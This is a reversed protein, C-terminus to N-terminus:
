PRESGYSVILSAGSFFGALALPEEGAVRATAKPFAYGASVALGLDLEGLVVHPVVEIGAHGVVGGASAGSMAPSASVAHVDVASAGGRVGADLGFRGSRARVIGVSLSLAVDAISATIQGADRSANGRELGIAVTAQARKVGIAAFVRVAALAIPAAFARLDIGAGAGARLNGRSKPLELSKSALKVAADTHPPPPLLSPAQPRQLLLEAWSTLFLQSVLVAVVRARAAPPVRNPPFPVRRELRKETIPDVAVARLDDGECSLEVKLPDGPERAVADLELLLLRQVDNADLDTCGAAAVDIGRGAARATAASALIATFVVAVIGSRLFKM